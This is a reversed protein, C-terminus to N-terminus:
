KGLYIKKIFNSSILEDTSGELVIRGNEFAYGRQAINLAMSANQEIILITKGDKNIDKITQLVEQVIIPALGMSPEDLLILNANSLLARGISLMQQEGGSLTGALQKRRKKLISFKEYVSELNNKMHNKNTMNNCFGLLLNEEVTILPFIGRGEPVLTIGMNAIKYTNKNKLSLGNFTINGHYEVQGTIAKLLTTKGSGNNGIITVIEGKNINISIENLAPIIGYNVNVNKVELM